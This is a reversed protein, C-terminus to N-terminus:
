VSDTVGHHFGNRKMKIVAIKWPKLHKVFKEVVQSIVQCFSLHTEVAKTYHKQEQM